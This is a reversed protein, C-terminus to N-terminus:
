LQPYSNDDRWNQAEKEWEVDGHTVNGVMEGIEGRAGTKKNKKRGKVRDPDM